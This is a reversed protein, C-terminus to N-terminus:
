ASSGEDPTSARLISPVLRRAELVLGAGFLGLGAVVGVVVAAAASLGAGLDCVLAVTAGGVVSNVLLVMSAMTFLVSRAGYHVGHTTGHTAFFAAGRPDMAAYHRRIREIGRLADINAVTTDVLRVVTFCGLVYVTPLVTFALAELRGRSSSAFGIAVLGSSLASLYIASRSGSESITASSVSQLAFYETGLASLFAPSEPEDDAL